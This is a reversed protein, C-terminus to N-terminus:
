DPPGLHALNIHPTHTRGTEAECGLGSDNCHLEVPGPLTVMPKNSCKGRVYKGGRHGHGLHTVATLHSM